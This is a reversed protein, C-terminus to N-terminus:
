QSELTRGEDAELDLGITELLDGIAEGVELFHRIHHDRRAAVVEYALDDALVVVVQEPDQRVLDGADVTDAGRLRHDLQPEDLLAVSPPRSLRGMTVRASCRLTSRSRRLRM